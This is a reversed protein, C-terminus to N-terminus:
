EESRSNYDPASELNRVDIELARFSLQKGVDHERMNPAPYKLRGTAEKDVDKVIKEVIVNRTWWCTPLWRPSTLAAGRAWPRTVM